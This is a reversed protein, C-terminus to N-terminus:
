HKPVLMELAPLEGDGSAKEDPSNDPESRPGEKKGMFMQVLGLCLGMLLFSCSIIVTGLFGALGLSDAEVEGASSVDRLRNAVFDQHLNFMEGTSSKVNLWASIYEEFEARIPM